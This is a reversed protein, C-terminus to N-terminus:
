VTIPEIVITMGCKLFIPILKNVTDQHLGPMRITSGNSQYLDETTQCVVVNFLRDENM